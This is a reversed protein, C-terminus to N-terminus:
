RVDRGRYYARVWDEAQELLAILELQQADTLARTM